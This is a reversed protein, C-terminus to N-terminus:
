KDIDTSRSWGAQWKGSGAWKGAVAIDVEERGRGHM